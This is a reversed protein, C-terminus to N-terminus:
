RTVIGPGDMRYRTETGALSDQGAIWKHLFELFCLEHCTNFEQKDRCRLAVRLFTKLVFYYMDFV